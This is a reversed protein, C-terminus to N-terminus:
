AKVMPGKNEWGIAYATYEGVNMEDINRYGLMMIDQPYIDKVMQKREYPTYLDEAGYLHLIEHAITAAPHTIEDFTFDKGLYNTFVTAYEVTAYYISGGAQQNAYSVGDKNVAFLLVIEQYDHKQHLDGFMKAENEYGLIQAARKHLDLTHTGDEGKNVIGNYKVDYGDDFATAYRKISFDLSKGHKRAESELFDLGLVIQKQTFEEISEEDWRSENDDMFFLHIQVDGELYVNTGLEYCPRSQLFDQLQKNADETNSPLPDELRGYIVNCGTALLGTLVMIWALFLKKM